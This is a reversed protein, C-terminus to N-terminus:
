WMSRTQVARLLPAGERRLWHVARVTPLDQRMFLGEVWQFDTHVHTCIAPFGKLDKLVDPGAKRM